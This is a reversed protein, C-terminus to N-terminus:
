HFFWRLSVEADDAELDDDGVEDANDNDEENYISETQLNVSFSLYLLELFFFYWKGSRCFITKPSVLM